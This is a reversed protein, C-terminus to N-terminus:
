YKINGAKNEGEPVRSVQTERCSITSCTALARNMKTGIKKEIEIQNTEIVM